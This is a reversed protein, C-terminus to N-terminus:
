NYPGRFFSWKIDLWNFQRQNGKMDDSIIECLTMDDFIIEYWRIFSEYLRMDDWIMGYWRISDFFYRWNSLRLLSSSSLLSTTEQVQLGRSYMICWSAGLCTKWIANVPGGGFNFRSGLFSQNGCPIPSWLGWTKVTKWTFIEPSYIKELTSWSGINPITM